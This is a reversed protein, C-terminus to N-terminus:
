FAVNRVEARKKILEWGTARRRRRRKSAGASFLSHVKIRHFYCVFCHKDFVMRVGQFYRNGSLLQNYFEVRFLMSAPPGDNCYL